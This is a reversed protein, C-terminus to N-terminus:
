TWLCPPPSEKLDLHCLQLATRPRGATLLRELAFCFDEPADRLWLLPGCQRWYAEEIEPGLSEALAWTARGEPAMILLRALKDPPWGSTRSREVAARLLAASAETPMWRLLGTFTATLPDTPLLNVAEEAIWDVLATQDLSLGALTAGVTMTGRAREALVGVGAFGKEAYVERLAAERLKQLHGGRRDFSEDRVRAPPRPWGEAFLWTHRVILDQPELAEYLSELRKVCTFAQKGTPGYNRLWHIKHRLAARITERDGNNADALTYPEALALTAAIRPEDFDQVKDLLAAIRNPHNASMANMRDAAAVLMGYHDQNTVGHGAGADDDRWEPRSSPTATDHGVNVLADLLQFAVAPYRACLMDLVAIRQELTAATQPIWTRFLAVLSSTPRNGWNGKIPVASLRALILSVRALRAFSWALTELAWLLGSHWCRGAFGSGSTEEILRTVPTGPVQLSTEVAHLFADPAAEALQPLLSALSLWRAGDAGDLLGRVLAEIDSDALGSFAPARVALKMLTDCLANILLGSQPRVKGYIQAASRARRWILSLWITLTL